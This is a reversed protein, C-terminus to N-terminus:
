GGFAARNEELLTNADSAAAGMADEPSRTGLIGESVAVELTEAQVTGIGPVPPLFRMADVQEAIVGQMTGDLVGSDRVSQRAPIMGSGAWTGSQESMWAVFVQAAAVKNPDAGNQRPIVFNHSNAWVAPTDGITPVPVAAYPLGSAELDNIQWIGDWTISTEGNKFALYQADIAVEAPSYGAEVIGRQWELAAIGPQEAFEAASGDGAYPEGGFQWQLSLNMLHAPWRNPMWFPTEFGAAQLADLAAMFSAEDTPVETIGAQEFHDTNYYMALSHVDLPIGYRAGEYEGAAWVEETFDDATLGVGDALSDLPSLLNRAAFTAMQDLHIVAVDPGEGSTLAAPMRQYLDGWPQTNSVVTINEHEANFDAVMQEMFPGDGGTFGNWFALEVAPGTYESAFDTETQETTAGSSCAVLALSAVLSVSAVAISRRRARPSDHLM